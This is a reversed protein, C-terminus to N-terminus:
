FTSNGPNQRIRQPSHDVMNKMKMIWILLYVILAIWIQTLVANQSTGRFTKIRLNQKLWKFFLEIEWREKHM